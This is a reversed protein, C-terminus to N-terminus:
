GEVSAMARRIIASVTPKFDQYIAARLAAVFFLVESFVTVVLVELRAILGVSEIVHELAVEAADRM